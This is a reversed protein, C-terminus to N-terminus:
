TLLVLWCINVRELDNISIFFSRFKNLTLLLSVLIVDDLDRAFILVRSTKPFRKTKKFKLLRENTPYVLHLLVEAIDHKFAAM